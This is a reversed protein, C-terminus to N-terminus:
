FDPLPSPSTLAQTKLFLLLNYRVRDPSTVNRVLLSLVLLLITASAYIGVYAYHLRNYTNLLTIYRSLTITTGPATFIKVWFVSYVIPFIFLLLGLIGFLTTITWALLRRKGFFLAYAESSHARYRDRLLIAVTLLILLEPWEQFLATPVELRIWGNVTIEAISFRNITWEAITSSMLLVYGVSLTCLTLAATCRPLLLYTRRKASKLFPQVILLALQIVAGLLYLGAVVITATILPPGRYKYTTFAPTDQIPVMQFTADGM